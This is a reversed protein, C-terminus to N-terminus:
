SFNQRPRYQLAEALHDPKIQDSGALDAITRAVKLLRHYARGSLQWREVAQKLLLLCSDNLSIMKKLDQNSMTSNLHITSGAFRTLQRQRAIVVRNQVLCSSDGGEAKAIKSFPLRPVIVHLDFRDLLPGSLRRQYKYIQGLSCQCEKQPDGAFGCPCPNLAAVLIFRAPFRVSGSARSITVWGEELPQRLSELVARSFEPLEDLFLIGRHALSIEGPRLATGGGILSIESATHHPARFPRQYVLPEVISLLGAVSYIATTELVEARSLPPLLGVLSRALLTKGSGPPGYLLVNHGGAAAIELARKAQEQGYIDALDIAAKFDTQVKLETLPQLTLGVRGTLHNLVEILNRAPLVKVDEVLAAESANSAPVLLYEFGLRRAAQAMVLIGKVPRLDGALSLEGIFLIKNLDLSPKLQGSAMLLALAMPLDYATGEKKLDAPALNITVKTRPFQCKSNKLASRVRERAEEVAKDPLGVIFIGPLQSSTDAEVEVLRATLGLVHLTFIKASM